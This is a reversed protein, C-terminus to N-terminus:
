FAIEQLINPYPYINRSEKKVKATWNEFAIYAITSIAPFCNLTAL